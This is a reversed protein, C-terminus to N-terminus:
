AISKAFDVISPSAWLCVVGLLCQTLKTTADQKGVIMYIASLVLGFVALTYGIQTTERSLKEASSRLSGAMANDAHVFNIMLFFPVLMMSKM